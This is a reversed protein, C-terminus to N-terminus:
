FFKLYREKEWDSVHNTYSLWEERKFDVWADFMKEGFVAKSLSDAAFADIAEELTRPLMSIGLEKLEAASKLYMNERHPKGPDLGEEIGQLGATLVMAAGLYPNCASDAARLEVRGGALPIRLTNTRNNNGYCCFIPAWTFGSMSGRMILRKYSNVTPAIVACIAPLHRLIGAIFQYGIKGLKCGMPDHEDYFLNKGSEKDYLSMNFHAGSGARNPYPKPMFTAFGGHKRAVEQAMWRFFVFNDSMTLADFYKFDIEFQGIGDEHDFSYVDWGLSNMMTVLEGIWPLNDLLRAADYAAKDLPKRTSLPRFGGDPTDEFVFFEAEMGLNMGLGMSEAKALARKLINRSCPEFPKGESWLDSAFWAVEKNWPLVRCSELDPHSSVEEDSVDQPVGDLAAGTFLESGGAMQSLHDIPVMKSKSVGHMDVYSALLFRVGQRALSERLEEHTSATKSM